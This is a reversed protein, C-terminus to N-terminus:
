TYVCRQRKPWTGHGPGVTPELCGTTARAGKSASPSAAPLGLFSASVGAVLPLQRVRLLFKRCDDLSHIQVAATASSEVQQWASDDSRFLRKFVAYTSAHKKMFESGFGLKMAKQIAPSHQLEAKSAGVEQACLGHAVIEIWKQLEKSDIDKTELDTITAVHVKDPKKNRSPWREALYISSKRKRQSAASCNAGTNPTWKAVGARVASRPATAPARDRGRPLAIMNPLAGGPKPNMKIPGKKWGQWVREGDKMAARAATTKRFQLLSKTPESPGVKAVSRLLKRRGVGILTDVDDPMGGHLARRAHENALSVLAKMARAQGLAAAKMSGSMRWGTKRVGKNVREKYCAFRRGHLSRWLRACTRSFDTLRLVGDSKTFIEEETIPGECAIELCAEAADADGGGEHAELFTRHLGLNREVTGTGDMWAVVLSILPRLADMDAEIQEGRSAALAAAWLIRNDVHSADGRARRTIRLCKIVRVWQESSYPINVAECLRRAARMLTVRKEAGASSWAAVNLAELDMNFGQFDAELRGLADGAISGMDALAASCEDKSSPKCFRKLKTGYRIYAMDELQEFIIQTVTMGVAPQEAHGGGRRPAAGDPARPDVMIWGEVFLTRVAEAFEQFVVATTTPDRDEVDFIRLFRRCLEGWDAAFGTELLGQPTMADLCQEALKRDVLNRRTDGALDALLLATAHLICAYRRRPEIWSEFRHPAYCFHKLVTTVGGGQSGKAGVVLRQCAELRAQLDISFSIKKLLADKNTFLRQNQEEFRGTRLLPDRCAIRVFHAADRGIYVINPLSARLVAATKQLAGDAVIVRISAVFHNFLEEDKPMSLPTCLRAILCMVERAAREAYDDAFDELTSGRLCQICGVIGEAAITKWTPAASEELSAAPTSNLTDVRFRVLKHGARDDFSISMASCQRILDRKKMRVVERLIEAMRVLPRARVARTRSPRIYHETELHQAAARWSQPTRTARWCRLWDEPQPVNKALLADDGLSAQLSLRMPTDLRLWAMVALRHVDSDRHQRIHEAQLAAPRAEFRAWATSHRARRPGEGGEGFTQRALADACMTCGLAWAGGWRVPREALWAVRGRPGARSTEAVHGCANTWADGHQYYRCRACHRAGGDHRALHEEKAESAAGLNDVKTTAAQRGQSAASTTPAAQQRQSAVAAGGRSTATAKSCAEM